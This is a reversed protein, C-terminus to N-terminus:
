RASRRCRAPACAVDQLREVGAGVHDGAVLRQQGGVAALQEVGGLLDAGLQVVLGGDGARDGDDARQPVAEGAVPDFADEADDVAGRVEDEIPHVGRPLAELVGEGGGAGEAVGFGVRGGVDLADVGGM